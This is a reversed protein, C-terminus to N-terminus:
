KIPKKIFVYIASAILLLPIFNKKLFSPKTTVSGSLPKDGGMAGGGGGAGGGVILPPAVYPSPNIINVIPSPTIPKRGDDEAIFTPSISSETPKHYPKSDLITRNVNDESTPMFTPTSEPRVYVPSPNIIDIIPIFPTPAPPRPAKIDDEYSPTVTPIADPKVYVPTPNIIDIIPVFPKEEEYSPMVTPIVDPKVYFPKSNIIDIIPAIPKVDDEYSPMVTPTVDPALRPRVTEMTPTILVPTPTQSFRNDTEDFAMPTSSAGVRSTTTPETFTFNSYGYIFADALHIHNKRSM